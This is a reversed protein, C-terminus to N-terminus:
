HMIITYYLLIILILIDSPTQREVTQSIPNIVVTEATV